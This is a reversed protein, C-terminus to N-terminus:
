YLVKCNKLTVSQVKKYDMADSIFLSTIVGAESVPSLFFPHRM